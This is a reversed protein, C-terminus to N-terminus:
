SGSGPNNNLEKCYVAWRNRILDCYGPDLEVLVSRCGVAECALLTSGSGAFPDYVVVESLDRDRPMTTLAHVILKVPKPTPHDVGFERPFDWVDTCQTEQQGYPGSYLIFEHSRAYLDLNQHGGTKRWVICCKPDFGSSKMGKSVNGISKWDCCAFVVQAHKAQYLALNVLLETDTSTADNKLKQGRATGVAADLHCQYGVGYPPDAFVHTVDYIDKVREPLECDTSDGCYLIHRGLKYIEGLKSKKTLPSADDDTTRLRNRDQAEKTENLGNRSAAELADAAAMAEDLGSQDYGTAELLGQSELERLTESLIHADDEALDSARNDAIGYALAEADTGAFEVCAIERMGIRKAAELTGHGAIVTGGKVVIPKQQKHARLSAEIARLNSEPHKRYNRPNPKVSDIPRALRKLELAIMPISSTEVIAAMSSAFHM